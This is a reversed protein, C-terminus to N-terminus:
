IKGKALADDAHMMLGDLNCCTWIADSLKYEDHIEKLDKKSDSAVAEVFRFRAKSPLRDWFFNVKQPM